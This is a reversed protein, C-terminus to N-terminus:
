AEQVRRAGERASNIYEVLTMIGGIPPFLMTAIVLLVLLTGKYGTERLRKTWWFPISLFIIWRFVEGGMLLPDHLAFVGLRRSLYATLAALFSISFIIGWIWRSRYCWVREM